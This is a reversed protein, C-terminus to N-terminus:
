QAKHRPTLNNGCSPVAYLRHVTAVDGTSTGPGGGDTVPPPTLLGRSAHELGLRYGERRLAEATDRTIRQHRRVKALIVPPLSAFTLVSGTDALRANNGTVAGLVVLILGALFALTSAVLALHERNIM